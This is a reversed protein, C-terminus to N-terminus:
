RAGGDAVSETGAPRGSARDGLILPGDVDDIHHAREQRYPFITVYDFM